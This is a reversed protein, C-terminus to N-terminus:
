FFHRQIKYQTYTLYFYSLSFNFYVQCKNLPDFYFYFYLSFIPPFINKNKTNIKIIIFYNFYKEIALPM